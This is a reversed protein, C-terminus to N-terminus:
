YCHIYIYKIKNKVKREAGMDVVRKEIERKGKRVWTCEKEKSKERNRKGKGRREEKEGM